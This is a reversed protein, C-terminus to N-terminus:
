VRVRGVSSRLLLFFLDGVVVLAVGSGERAELSGSAGSRRGRRPPSSVFLLAAIASRQRRRRRRRRELGQREGVAGRRPQGTGRTEPGSVIFEFSFIRRAADAASDAFRVPTSPDEGRAGGSRKKRRLQMLPM